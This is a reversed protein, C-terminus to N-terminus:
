LFVLALNLLLVALIALRKMEELSAANDEHCASTLLPEIPRNTLDSPKCANRLSMLRGSSRSRSASYMLDCNGFRLMTMLLAPM